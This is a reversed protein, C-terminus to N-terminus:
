CEKSIIDGQPFLPRNRFNGGCHILPHAVFDIISTWTGRRITAARGEILVEDSSAKAERIVMTRSLGARGYAHFLVAKMRPM